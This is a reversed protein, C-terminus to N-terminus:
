EDIATLVTDGESLCKEKGEMLVACISYKFLIGATTCYGLIGFFRHLRGFGGRWLVAMDLEGSPCVLSAYDHIVFDLRGHERATAHANGRQGLDM